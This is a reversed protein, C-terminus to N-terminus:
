INVLLLFSVVPPLQEIDGVWINKKGLLKTAAFMALLAQSAEDMIVVDFRRIQQVSTAVRSSVYFTSLMVCGSSATPEKCAQLKPLRNAEDSTLSTKYIKGTSLMDYLADKEAVEMLARNTLATVLVSKGKSCLERCVNAIQYTKGTGPPGQM